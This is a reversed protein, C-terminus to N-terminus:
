PLAEEPARAAAAGPGAAILALVADLKAEMADLRLDARPPGAADALAATLAQLRAAHDTLAHSFSEVMAALPSIVPEVRMEVVREPASLAALAASLGDVAASLEATREALSRNQEALAAAASEITSGMRSAAGDMATEAAKALAVTERSLTDATERLSAIATRAMAEVSEGSLRSATELPAASKATVDEVGALIRKSTEDVQVRVADWSEAASQLAARRFQNLEVVTGDLERKVRRAADALELRSVREVEVPDRRMQNMFIRLAIGAITSAVAIGFNRVIDDAGSDARADFQWLSVALSTLTFLFGMYYLNDGSQDERLRLSRIFVVAAAYLLMISVPIATVAAAPLGALKAFIIYGAGIVVFGLFVLADGVGTLPSSGAERGRRPAM